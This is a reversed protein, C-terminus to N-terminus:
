KKFVKRDLSPFKSLGVEEPKIDHVLKVRGMQAASMDSKQFNLDYKKLTEFFEEKSKTYHANLIDVAINRNDRLKKWRDFNHKYTKAPLVIGETTPYNLNVKSFNKFLFNLKAVISAFDQIKVEEPLKIEYLEDESLRIKM